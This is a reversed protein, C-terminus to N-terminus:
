AAPAPASSRPGSAAARGGALRVLPPSAPCRPPWNSSGGTSAPPARRPASWCCDPATCWTAPPPRAGAGGAGRRRDAAAADLVDPDGDRAGLLVDLLESACRRALAPQRARRAGARAGRRVPPRTTRAAAGRGAASCPARPPGTDLRRDLYAAAHAAREPRHRSPGRVLDAVRRALAPATSAPSHACRRPRAPARSAAAPGPLRRAGAGPPHRARRRARRRAAAPRGGRLAGARAASLPRPDGPGTRAPRARRRAPRLRRPPRAPRARRLAATRPRGRHHRAPRGAARVGRRRCAAGPREDHAWRDVARCM